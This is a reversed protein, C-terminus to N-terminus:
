NEPSQAASLHEHVILWGGDIKEWILTVRADVEAKEGTKSRTSIHFTNTTWAVDGRRWARVDDNPAFRASELGAFAKQQGAKLQDWGVYGGLPPGPLFYVDEGGKAYFRGAADPALRSWVTFWDHVLTRFEDDATAKARLEPKAPAAKAGAALPVSSHEHVDVWAGDKKEWIFTHRATLKLEKGDAKRKGAVTFTGATWAVDGRRRVRVDDGATQKLSSLTDLVNRQMNTRISDWGTYGEVPPFVDYLLGGGDRPYFRAAKAADLTDWAAYNAANLRKIEDAERASVESGTGRPKDDGAGIDTAVLAAGIVAALMLSKTQSM